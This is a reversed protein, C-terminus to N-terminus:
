ILDLYQFAKFLGDEEVNSTIYSAAQKVKDSANGMAISYGCSCFMPLDVDSDGFALCDERKLSLHEITREVAVGKNIDSVTVDGFLTDKDKGGWTGNNLRNFRETFEIYTKYSSLIYSIKNVDDRYLDEGNLLTMDKIFSNAILSSNEITKGKGLAYKIFTDPGKLLMYKNCFMGNNSELYFGIEKSNCWDVIDKVDKTDLFNHFLTEDHYEIYTGNGCILGDVRPLDRKSLEYKSCGTCLFVIHGNKRAVDIANKASSPTNTQYDILTGDVDIFLIKSM